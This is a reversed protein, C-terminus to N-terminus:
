MSIKQQFYNVMKTEKASFLRLTNSKTLVHSYDKTPRTSALQSLGKNSSVARKTLTQRFDSSHKNSSKMVNYRDDFLNIGQEIYRHNKGFSVIALLIDKVNIVLLFILKSDLHRSLLSHFPRLLLSPRTLFDKLSKHFLKQVM